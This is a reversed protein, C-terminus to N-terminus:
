LEGGDATIILDGHRSKRLSEAGNFSLRIRDPDAGPAVEFDYELQLQDSSHYALDIGPYVNRYKVGAYVPVKTHWKRPDNGILYNARAAQQELGEIKPTPNSGALEIRLVNTVTKQKRPAGEGAKEAIASKSFALVTETPTLFLTYGKGRSLFKVRSDTQGDNREFSLPLKGYESAIRIKSRSLATGSSAAGVSVKFTEHSARASLNSFTLSAGMLAVTIAGLMALRVFGRSVEFSQWTQDVKQSKM